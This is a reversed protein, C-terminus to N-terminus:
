AWWREKLEAWADFILAAVILPPGIVILLLCGANERMEEHYAEADSRAPSELV